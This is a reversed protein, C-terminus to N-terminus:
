DEQEIQDTINLIINQKHGNLISSESHSQQSHGNQKSGASNTNENYRNQKMNEIVSQGNQPTKKLQENEASSSRYGSPNM